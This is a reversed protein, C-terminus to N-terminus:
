RRFLDGRGLALRPHEERMVLLSFCLPPPSAPRKGPREKERPWARKLAGPPAAILAGVGSLGVARAFPNGMARSRVKEIMLGSAVFRFRVAATLATISFAPRRMTAWFRMRM